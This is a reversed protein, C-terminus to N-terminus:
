NQIVRLLLKRADATNITGNKDVDMTAQNQGSAYLVYTLVVRVDATGVRGDGNVDFCLAYNPTAYGYIRVYNFNYYKAFVGQDTQEGSQGYTNGEITYVGSDTVATVIGMHTPETTSAPAFYILDGAKPIYSGGRSQSAELLGKADFWASSYPAYVCRPVVSAPIAAQEACWAVFSGEWAAYAANVPEVAEDYWVGYKQYNNDIGYQDGTLSGEIYGIQTDAVGVLDAAGNGTNTYTNAYPTATYAPTAYGLIRSYNLSFTKAFVGELEPEGSSGGVNGEVVYVNTATVSTVIGMQSPLTSDAPALYILDGVKPVYSGGRAPADEFLGAEQFWQSSYPIYACRPIVTAPIDAQDACWAVFAGGWAANSVGLNEVNEDYWVGYKQYNNAYYHDGTLTGEIYGVQTKAVSVLDTISHGTNTHYNAYPDTLAAASVFCASLTLAASLVACLFRKM